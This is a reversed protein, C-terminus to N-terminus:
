RLQWYMAAWPISIGPHLHAFGPGLRATLLRPSSPLSPEHCSLSNFSLIGFVSPVVQTPQIFPTSGFENSNPQPPWPKMKLIEFLAEQVQLQDGIHNKDMLQGTVLNITVSPIAYAFNAYVKKV